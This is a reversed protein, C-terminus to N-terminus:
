GAAMASASFTDRQYPLLLLSAAFRKTSSNLSEQLSIKLFGSRKGSDEFPVRLAFNGHKAVLDVM